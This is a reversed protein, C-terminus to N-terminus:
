NSLCSEIDRYPIYSNLASIKSCSIIEIDNRSQIQNLGIVFTNLYNELKTSFSQSSEGYGGHYHTLSSTLCLDFGLLYIKKFGLVIALQLASYGSNAGSRFDDFDFGFGTQDKSEIINNFHILNSYRLNFRTDVYGESDKKMFPHAMNVVFYKNAYCNNLASLGLKTIFTYDVTIFYNPNPVNLVAKNVVITKKNLLSFFNFNHLSPGGAVVYCEQSNLNNM